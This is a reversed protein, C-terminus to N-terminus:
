LGASDRAAELSDLSPFTTADPRHLDISIQQLSDVVVTYIEEYEVPHEAYYDLTRQLQDETVGHKQLIQARQGPISDVGALGAYARALHLDIMLPALTQGEVPPQDPSFASCGGLVVGVMLLALATSLAQLSSSLVNMRLAVYAGRVGSTVM